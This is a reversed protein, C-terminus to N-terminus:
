DDLIIALQRYRYKSTKLDDLKKRIFSDLSRSLIGIIQVSKEKIEPLEKKLKDLEWMASSLAKDVIIEVDKLLKEAIEIVKELTTSKVWERFSRGEAQSCKSM